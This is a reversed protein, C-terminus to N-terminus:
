RTSATRGGPATLRGTEESLSRLLELLTGRARRDRGGDQLLGAVADRAQDRDPWTTDWRAAAHRAAAHVRPEAGDLGRLVAMTDGLFALGILAGDRDAGRLHEAVATATGGPFLRTLYGAAALVESRATLTLVGYVPHCVTRTMEHLQPMTLLDAALDLGDALGAAAAARVYAVADWGPGPPPRLAPLVDEATDRWPRQPPPAADLLFAASGLTALALAHDDTDSSRLLTELVAADPSCRALAVRIPWRLRDPSGAAALATYVQEALHAGAVPDSQRAATLLRALTENQRATRVARSTLSAIAAAKGPLDDPLAPAPEPQAAPDDVLRDLLDAAYGGIEFDERHALLVDRDGGLPSRLLEERERQAAVHAAQTTLRPLVATLRDLRRRAAATRERRLRGPIAAGLRLLADHAARHYHWPARDDCHDAILAALGVAGHRAALEVAAIRLRAPQPREGLLHAALRVPEDGVAPRAASMPGIAVARAAPSLRDDRAVACLATIGPEGLSHLADAAVRQAFRAAQPDRLCAVQEAIFGADDPGTMALLRAAFRPDTDRAVRIMTAAADDAGARAAALRLPEQWVLSLTRTPLAAADDIASRAAFYDRHVLRPFFLKGARSELVGEDLLRARGAHWAAPDAAFLEDAATEECWGADRDVLFAALTEAAYATRPDGDLHAFADDLLDTLSPRIRPRLHRALLAVGDASAFLEDIRPTGREGLVDHLATMPIGRRVASEALFRIAQEAAPRQVRYVTFDAGLGRTARGTVLVPLRPHRRRLDGIREFLGAPAGGDVILHLCGADMLHELAVDHRVPAHRALLRPDFRDAAPVLVPLRHRGRDGVTDRNAAVASLRRAMERVVTSKGTGAVGVLAACASGTLAEIASRPPEDGTAVSLEMYPEPGGGDGPRSVAEVPRSLDAPHVPRYVAAAVTNAAETLADELGPLGRGDVERTIAGLLRAAAAPAQHAAGAAIATTARLDPATWLGFATPPDIWEGAVAATAASAAWRTPSQQEDPWKFTRHAALVLHRSYDAFWDQHSGTPHCRYAHERLRLLVSCILSLGPRPATIEIGGAPLVAAAATVLRQVAVLDALTPGGGIARMLNIELWACDAVLSEGRDPGSTRAYDILYPDRDVLLVNRANLDGHVRCGRVRPLSAELARRLATFPHAARVGPASIADGNEALGPLADRLRSMVVGPRSGVVTGRVEVGGEPCHLDAPVGRLEVTAFGVRGLLRGSRRHLEVDDVRVSRGALADADPPVSGAKWITREVLRDTTEGGGSGFISGSADALRTVAIALDPGLAPVMNLLSTSPGTTAGHYLSREAQSFLEGIATGARRAAARDGLSARTFVEELTTVSDESRGAFQGAHGYVIAEWGNRSVASGPDLTSHRIPTCMHTAVPRVVREWADREVAMEAAPGVKVVEVLPPSGSGVEIRLVLAGGAGTFREAVRISVDEPGWAEAPLRQLVEDIEDEDADPVVGPVFTITRRAM